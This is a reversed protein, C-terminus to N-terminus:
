KYRYLKNEQIYRIVSKDVWRDIPRGNSVNDRIETASVDLPKMEVLDISPRLDPHLLLLAETANVPPRVAAAIRCLKLLREPQKWKGITKLSDAGVIFWYDAPQLYQLESITDVAYSPGRRSIEADSVAMSPRNAVALRVMELRAKAPSSGGKQKLPNQFAPMWVVEDLELATQTAEALAMHGFHPPDFTGGFVGIRM